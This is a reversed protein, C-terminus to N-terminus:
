KLEKPKLAPHRAYIPNMVELLMAGMVKADHVRFPAQRGRGPM